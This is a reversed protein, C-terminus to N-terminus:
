NKAYRDYAVQYINIYDQAGMKNLTDVYNKWTEDNLETKGTIFQAEMEDVYTKVDTGISSILENEEETFYVVPYCSVCYQLQETACGDAYVEAISTKGENIVPFHLKPMTTGCDPTNQGRFEEPNWGEPIIQYWKGSDGEIYDWSEGRVGQYVTMSGEVSYLYDVWQLALEPHECKTTIAFAGRTITNKKMKMPKDNYSSTLQAVPPYNVSDESTTTFDNAPLASAVVGVLNAKSDANRQSAAKTFVDNDLLKEEYLGRCYDLYIRYTDSTFQFAVKGDDQVFFGDTNMPAGFAFMYLERLSASPVNLPIEDKEGNGNPDEDRFRVLLDHFGDVTTPLEDRSIGLANLWEYNYWFMNSASRPSGSYQPLAYINGDLTTISPILEPFREAAKMYNPAYKPLLDNLPVLLGQQGYSIEDNTTLYGGFFFDPLDGSAFALNKKEAYTDSAVTNFELHIGTMKEMYKFFAMESWEGQIAAKSGMVTMTIPEETLPYTTEACAFSALLLTALLLALTRKM